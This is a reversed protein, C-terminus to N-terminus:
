IPPEHYLPPVYVRVTTYAFTCDFVSFNHLSSNVSLCTMQYSNYMCRMLDVVNKVINQMITDIACSFQRWVDHMTIYNLQRWPLMIYGLNPIKIGWYPTCGIKKQRALARRTKYVWAVTDGHSAAGSLDWMYRINDLRRPPGKSGRYVGSARNGDLVCDSANRGNRANRKSPFRAEILGRWGDGGRVTLSVTVRCWKLM